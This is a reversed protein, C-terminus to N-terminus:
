EESAKELEAEFKGEVFEQVRRYAQEPTEGEKVDSSYSIHFDVSSYGPKGLKAGLSLSVRDPTSM